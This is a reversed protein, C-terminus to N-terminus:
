SDRLVIFGFFIIIAPVISDPSLLPDDQLCLIMIGALSMMLGGLFSTHDSQKQMLREFQEDTM